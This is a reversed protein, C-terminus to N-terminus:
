QRKNMQTFEVELELNFLKDNKLTKIEYSSTVINVAFLSNSDDWFVRPSEILELLLEYEREDVWDSILKLRRKSKTDYHTIGREAKTYSWDGSTADVSGYVKKYSKRQVEGGEVNKGKFTFSDYAGWKNQYHLRYSTFKSCNDVIEYPVCKSTATGGSNTLVLIYYSVDSDIIPLAGSNVTIDATPIYDMNNTGSPFRVFRDGSGTLDAFPNSVTFSGNINKTSDFTIINIKSAANATHAAFYVWANEGTHIKQNTDLALSSYEVQYHNTLFKGLDTSDKIVVGVQNYSLWEDWELSGDYTYYTGSSVLGSTVTGTAGYSEGFYVNFPKYMNPCQSFGEADDGLIELDGKTYSRLITNLNFYGYGDPNPFKFLRYDYTTSGEFWVDCWYKYNTETNNSGSVVFPLENHVPEYQQPTKKITIAM